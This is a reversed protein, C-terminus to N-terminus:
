ESDGNLREMEAQVQDIFHDLYLYMGKTANESLEVGVGAYEEMGDVVDEADEADDSYLWVHDVNNMMHMVLDEVAKVLMDGLREYKDPDRM